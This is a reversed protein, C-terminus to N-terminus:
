GTAGFPELGIGGVGEAQDESTGSNTKRAPAGSDPQGRDASDAAAQLGALVDGPDPEGTSAAAKEPASATKEAAGVDDHVPRNLLEYYGRRVRGFDAYSSLISSVTVNPNKAKIPTGMAIVRETIDAVRMPSDAESLVQKCAAVITDPRHGGTRRARSPPETASVKSGSEASM